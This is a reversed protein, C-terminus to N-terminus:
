MFRFIQARLFTSVMAGPRSRLVFRIRKNKGTLDTASNLKDYGVSEYGPVAFKYYRYVALLTSLHKCDLAPFPLDGM